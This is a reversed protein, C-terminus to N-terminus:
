ASNEPIEQREDQSAIWVEGCNTCAWAAPAVQRFFTYGCDCQFPRGAVIVIQETTM